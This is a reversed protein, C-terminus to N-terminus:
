HGSPAPWSVYTATSYPNHTAVVIWGAGTPPPDEGSEEAKNVPKPFVHHSNFYQKPDKFFEKYEEDSLRLVAIDPEGTGLETRWIGPTVQTWTPPKEQQARKTEEQALLLGSALVFLLSLFVTSGLVIRKM